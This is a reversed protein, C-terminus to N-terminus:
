TNKKKHAELLRIIIDEYTERPHVKISNMKDKTKQSIAITPM